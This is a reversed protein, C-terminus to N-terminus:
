GRYFLMVASDFRLAAVGDVFLAEQRGTLIFQGPRSRSQRCEVTENFFRVKEGARLEREWAMKTFGPSPGFAVPALGAAHRLKAQAEQHDRQKRMWMSAIHIPSVIGTERRRAGLRAFMPEWRAFAAIDDGTFTHVGLDARHGATFFDPLIM